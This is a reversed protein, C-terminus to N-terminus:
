SHEPCGGARTSTVSYFHLPFLSLSLVWTPYSHLGGMMNPTHCSSVRHAAAKSKLYSLVDLHQWGVRDQYLLFPNALCPGFHCGSIKLTDLHTNCSWSRNKAPVIQTDCRNVPPDRAQAQALGTFFDIHLILPPELKGCFGPRVPM